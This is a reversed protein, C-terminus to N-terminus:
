PSNVPFLCVYGVIAPIDLDGSREVSIKVSGVDSRVTVSSMAFKIAVSFNRKAASFVLM